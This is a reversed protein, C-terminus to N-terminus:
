VDSALRIGSFQWRKDPQLFNRYTRRIHRKPTACSGGRLVMQGSMFKGNYEGLAGDERKYGPYPLYASATWEWVDGFLQAIGSAQSQSPQPHFRESELFNGGSPAAYSQTAAVEWEAETALRKGSWAAFAEAEYYSVHCVPSAAAEESAVERLGSLTMEHWVGDLKEWYLPARWGEQRCLTWGDSLWLEPSRYGGDDMFALYERNTVLRSELGFENLYVKHQPSENDFAFEDGNYGVAYLGGSFVLMTSGVPSLQLAALIDSGNGNENGNRNSRLPALAPSEFLALQEKPTQYQFPHYVPRLPNLSLIYKVDTILLEQHQEEHHLGLETLRQLEVWDREPLTRILNLMSEDVAARYSFIEQVTPRSLSGRKNRALRVGQSEYYSNFIFHYQEVVPKFHRQFKALIFTEFFWSTHGLHWKPPSVDDIPQVVYDETELPACLHETQWRVRLYFAELESRQM